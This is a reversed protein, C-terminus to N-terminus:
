EFWLSQGPKPRTCNNGELKYTLLKSKKLFANMTHQSNINQNDLLIPSASCFIASALLNIKNTFLEILSKSKNRNM